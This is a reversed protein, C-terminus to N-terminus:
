SSGGQQCQFMSVCDFILCKDERVTGHINVSCFVLHVHHVEVPVTVCTILVDMPNLSM